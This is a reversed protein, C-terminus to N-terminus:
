GRRNKKKFFNRFKENTNSFKEIANNFKDIQKTKEKETMIGDEIAKDMLVITEDMRVDISMPNLFLKKEIKKLDKKFKRELKEKETLEKSPFFKSIGM